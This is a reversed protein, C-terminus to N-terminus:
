LGIKGKNFIEYILNWDKFDVVSVFDTVMEFYLRYM